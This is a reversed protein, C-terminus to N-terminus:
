FNVNLDTTLRWDTIYSGSDHIIPFEYAVGISVDKTLPVRTGAAGTLMNEGGSGSSGLDFFDQGEDTIPLRDGADLVHVLNLEFLPIVPGLNTDAHLSLDYFSSDSNDIAARLGTYGILNVPGAVMAASLFPNVIGDGKGQLVETEGVPAEYRLGTTIISDECSSIAYKVGGAVNAFGDGDNLLTKPKFDVYGDKTAIIALRDTVAYRLQLAYIEVDGGQTAFNDDIEHHIYIPRINSQIRPDEFNVPNSVPSAAQEIPTAMLGSACFFSSLVATKIVKKLEYSNM